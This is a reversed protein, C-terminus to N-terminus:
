TMAAVNRFNTLSALRGTRATPRSRTTLFCRPLQSQSAAFADNFRSLYRELADASFHDMVPGEGGPAARKVQQNTKDLYALYLRGDRSPAPWDLTGDLGIRSQVDETEGNTFVALAAIVHALDPLPEPVENARVRQTEIRLRAAAHREDIQPGGFPWGTGLNMDVGLGIRGAERITHDLAAMWEPSLFSLCRDDAGQVGYIPTIEVGGLGAAKYTELLRTLNPDDVASGLWWWRTWPSCTPTIPPWEVAADDGACQPCIGAIVLLFLGIPKWFYTRM